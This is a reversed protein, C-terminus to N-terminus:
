FFVLQFIILVLFLFQFKGHRDTAGGEGHRTVERGRFSSEVDIMNCGGGWTKDGGEGQFIKGHRDHQVGWGGM